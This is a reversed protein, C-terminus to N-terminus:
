LHKPPNDEVAKFKKALYARGMCFNAIKLKKSFKRLYFVKEDKEWGVRAL